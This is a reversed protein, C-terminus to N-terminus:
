VEATSAKSQREDPCVGQGWGVVGYGLVIVYFCPNISGSVQFRPPPAWCSLFPLLQRGYSLLPVLLWILEGGVPWWLGVVALGGGKGTYPTTAM